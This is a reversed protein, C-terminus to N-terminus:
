NGDDLYEEEADLLQGLRDLSSEWFVLHRKIWGDAEKLGDVRLAFVHHRGKIQRIVLGAAELVKLHKSVTPQSVEFLNVIEGATCRQKHSIMALIKRRSEDGLAHFIRDLSNSNHIAM